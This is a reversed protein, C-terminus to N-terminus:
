LGMALENPPITEAASDQQVYVKREKCLFVSSHKVRKYIRVSKSKVHCKM